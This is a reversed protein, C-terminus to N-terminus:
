GGGPCTRGCGPAPTDQWLQGGHHLISLSCAPSIRLEPQGVKSRLATCDQWGTLFMCAEACPWSAAYHLATMGYLFFCALSLAHGDQQM